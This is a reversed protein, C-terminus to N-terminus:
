ATSSGLSADRRISGVTERASSDDLRVDKDQDELRSVVLYIMEEPPASQRVDSQTAGQQVPGHQYEFHIIRPNFTKPLPTSQRELLRTLALRSDIDQDQLRAIISQLMEESLASPKELVRIAALRTTKDQHWLRRAVSKLMEESLASQRRLARIAAQRVHNNQDELRTAVSQLMEESLVSQKELVRIAASRTNKDQHTLRGAISQLMAESLTSQRELVRIAAQRVHKDGDELRAVISQLMEESLASQRELVQLAVIRQDVRAESSMWLKALGTVCTSLNTRQSATKMIVEKMADSGECIVDEAVKEPFETEKALLSYGTHDYEVYLWQLLSKELRARATPFSSEATAPVESLCHMILRQHAPGLVDRPEQEIAEFFCASEHEDALDLLGAVFRWMIDYRADYKFEHVFTLPLVKENKKSWRSCSLPANRIWQRVFYRAAFYEQYTLHL